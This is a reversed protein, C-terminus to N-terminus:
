DNKIRKIVIFFSQDNFLVLQHEFRREINQQLFSCINYETHMLNCSSPRYSSNQQKKNKNKKKPPPTNIKNNPKKGTIKFYM